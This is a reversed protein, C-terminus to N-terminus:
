KKPEDDLKRIKERIAEKAEENTKLNGNAIDYHVRRKLCDLARVYLTHAKAKQGVTAHWDAIQRWDAALWASGFYRDAKEYREAAQECIGELVDIAATAEPLRKAAIFAQIYSAYLPGRPMVVDGAPAEKAENVFKSTEDDLRDQKAVFAKITETPDKTSKLQKLLEILQENKSPPKEQAVALSALILLAVVTRM